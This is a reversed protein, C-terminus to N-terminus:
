TFFQIAHFVSKHRAKAVCSNNVQCLSPPKPPNSQVLERMGTTLAIKLVMVFFSLKLASETAQATSTVQGQAILQQLLM